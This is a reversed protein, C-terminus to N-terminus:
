KKPIMSLLKNRLTTVEKINMLNILAGYIIIAFLIAATLSILNSILMEGMLNNINKDIWWAAAGM